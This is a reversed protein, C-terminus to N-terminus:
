CLVYQCHSIRYSTYGEIVQATLPVSTISVQWLTRMLSRLPRAHAFAHDFVNVVIPDCLHRENRVKVSEHGRRKVMGDLETVNVFPLGVWDSLLEGSM